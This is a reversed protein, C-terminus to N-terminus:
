TMTKKKKASENLRQFKEKLIAENPWSQSLPFTHSSKAFTVNNSPIRILRVPEAPGYFRFCWILSSVVNQLLHKPSPRKRWPLVYPTKPDPHTEGGWSRQTQGSEVTWLRALTCCRLQLVTGGFVARLPYNQWSPIDTFSDM